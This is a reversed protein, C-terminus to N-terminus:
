LFLTNPKSKQTLAMESFPWLDCGEVRSQWDLVFMGEIHGQRYRKGSRSSSNSCHTDRHAPPYKNQRGRDIARGQGKRECSSFPVVGRLGQGLTHTHPTKSERSNPIEATETEWCYSHLVTCIRITLNFLFKELFSFYVDCFPTVYDMSYLTSSRGYM